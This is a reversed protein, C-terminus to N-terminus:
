KQVPGWLDQLHHQRQSGGGRELCPGWVIFMRVLTKGWKVALLRNWLPTLPGLRPIPGARHSVPAGTSQPPWVSATGALGVDRSSRAARRVARGGEPPLLILIGSEPEAELLSRMSSQGVRQLGSVQAPGSSAEGCTVPGLGSGFSAELQSCSGTGGRGPSRLLGLSRWGGAGKSVCAPAELLGSFRRSDQPQSGTLVACGPM